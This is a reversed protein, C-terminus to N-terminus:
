VDFVYIFTYMNQWQKAAGYSGNGLRAELIGAWLSPLREGGGHDEGKAGDLGVDHTGNPLAAPRSRPM